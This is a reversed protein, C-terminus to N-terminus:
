WVKLLVEGGVKSRRAQEGTMVGKSTSVVCIGIGSLVRPMAAATTYIRLGPKSVRQINTIKRVRRGEAAAAPPKLYIRLMGQNTEDEVKKFDFIYHERKLVELINVSLKSRKVDAKVQRARHANRIITLMDSIPDTLAM